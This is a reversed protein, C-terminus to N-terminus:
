KVDVVLYFAYFIDGNDNCLEWYTVSRGATSPAQMDAIFTTQEGVKVESDRLYYTKAKSLVVGKSSAVRIRYNKNWTKTGVNKFTWSADFQESPHFVKGDEPSQSIFQAQDPGARRTATPYVVGGGTPPKITPIATLTPVLTATAEQAAPAQTATPAEAETATAEVSAITATPLPNLAAEITLKAVVTQVAETRVRPIDPTPPAVVTPTNCGALTLGFLLIAFFRTTKQLNKMILEEM